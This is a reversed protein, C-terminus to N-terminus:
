GVPSCGHTCSDHWRDQKLTENKNIYDPDTSRVWFGPRAKSNWDSKRSVSVTTKYRKYRRDQCIRIYAFYQGDKTKKNTLEIKFTTAM